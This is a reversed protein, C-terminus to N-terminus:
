FMLLRMAGRSVPKEGGEFYVRFEKGHDGVHLRVRGRQPNAKPQMGGQESGSLLM